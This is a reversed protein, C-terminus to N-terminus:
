HFDFNYRVQLGTLVISEPKLSGVSELNYWFKEPKGFVEYPAQDQDEELESYDSKPWDKAVPYTTHRFLPHATLCIYSYSHNAM